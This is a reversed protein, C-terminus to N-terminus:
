KLLDAVSITATPAPESAARLAEYEKRLEACGKLNANRTKMDWSEVVAKAKEPSVTKGAAKAVNVIARALILTLKPSGGGGVTRPPSLTGETLRKIRGELEGAIEEKTGTKTLGSVGDGVKAMVGHFMMAIGVPKPFNSVEM